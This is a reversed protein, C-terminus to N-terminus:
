QGEFTKQFRWFSVGTSLFLKGTIFYLSYMVVRSSYFGVPDWNIARFTFLSLTVYKSLKSTSYM